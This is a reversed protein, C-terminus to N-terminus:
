PKRLPITLKVCTGRGPSSDVSLHGGLQAARSQMNELGHGGARGNAAETPSVDSFGRGDDRIEAILRNHSVTIDLSVSTCDAHRSINNIAEKFILFLHRRQEPNLKVKELELPAQLDFKIKQPELVDSAFQRIRVVVNSLDDHYPDIAWVIDRMSGVLVRASDAIETLMPVSQRAATDGVQRKVVESLIAMRSLGSGIDDHLDTAIRARMNAVALLRAVRYRYLAYAILTLALAALSLFWWRQWVPAAITFPFGAPAASMQQDGSIARALFRYKGPSLNGYNVTREITPASWDRDAGELRYQYRLDEGLSAGLGVFDVSVQNQNSALALPQLSLEGLESIRRGVGVVRLGTIYVSPPTSSEQREPAFRSLGFQSGFWLAGQRDRFAIVITGKPLGDAVTFHKLSRTEPDLRDVGHGTGAYIRGWEDETISRVNNSSLGDATTYKVVRLTDATPDDIRNLGGLQSGIWLRGAHDAYLWIIWGPPVGDQVTFRKFGGATSYRLLGGGEATGIWLNGARDEGFATFDTGPPAGTAETYDHFRNTAREWRLLGFRRGTTAAWVDGRSDEYVRFVEGVPLGDRVDYVAKPKVSALQEIRKVKPFRYLRNGTPIWWEGLHDQTITQGWGWGHYDIFPPLNPAVSTFRGGDFRNIRRGINGMASLVEASNIVFLEGDRNEFISNIYPTGLGDALGYGTFGNRVVKTAGCQSAVWMNGDRDETVDWVDYDCIGNQAKYVRFSPEHPNSAPAFLCLGRITAVWLKGDHTQYLATIWSSALGDKIGYVRATLPLTDPKAVLRYLGAGRTGIWINGDDDEVLAQVAGSDDTPPLQPLGREEAYREVRGDPALRYLTGGGTGIWLFGKRDKTIATARKEGESEAPPGLDVFHFQAGGNASVELRYLGESTACWIAGTEDELLANFATAKQGNPPNYVVFMPEPQAGSEGKQAAVIEGGRTASVGKPNFRCLGSDTAIWYVGARTELLDNVRRDPLGNDTTYNTFNYGDFRSIGDGAVIWIFGRSDQEIHTAADRPLGDATIYTRVPLQEAWTLLPFLLIVKLLWFFRNVRGPQRLSGPLLTREVHIVVSKM